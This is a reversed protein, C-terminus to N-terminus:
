SEIVNDIPVWGCNGQQDSCWFWGSEERGVVLEDGVAVSLERAVYEYRATGSRGDASFDIVGSPVWGSKGREDTCWVWVWAPNGNWYDVKESVIFTEGRRMSIPDLYQAQYDRIVRCVRPQRATKADTRAEGENSM